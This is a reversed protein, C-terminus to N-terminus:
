PIFNQVEMNFPDLELIREKAELRESMPAIANIDFNSM